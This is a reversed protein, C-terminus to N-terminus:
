RLSKLITLIGKGLIIIGIYKVLGENMFLVSGAITDILGLSFLTWQM